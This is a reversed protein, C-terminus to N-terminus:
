DSDSLTKAGLFAEEPLPRTSGFNCTERPIDEVVYEYHESDSDSPHEKSAKRIGELGNEEPEKEEKVEIKPRFYIKLYTFSYAAWFLLKKMFSLSVESPLIYFAAQLLGESLPYVYEYFAM